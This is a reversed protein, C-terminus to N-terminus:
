FPPKDTTEKEVLTAQIPVSKTSKSKPKKTTTVYYIKSATNNGSRKKAKNYGILMKIFMCITLSFVYIFVVFLFGKM